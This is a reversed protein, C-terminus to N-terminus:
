PTGETAAGVFALTLSAQKCGDQNVPLNLMTVEPWEEPTFGLEDLSATSSAALTFGPAGSFQEVSFDNASCPHALDSQPGNVSAVQVNLSSISLDASERNVLTLDLSAATGPTLPNPLAGDITFAKPATVTPAPSPSGDAPGADSESRDSVVLNVATSGSRRPRHAQLLLVYAGPPTDVATGVTLTTTPRSAGQSALGRQPAFSVSAGAPLGRAM